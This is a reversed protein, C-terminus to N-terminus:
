PSKNMVVYAHATRALVLRERDDGEGQLTCFICGESKERLGEIFEMRWPAWINSM